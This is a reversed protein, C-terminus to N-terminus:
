EGWFKIYGRMRLWVWSIGVEGLVVAGLGVLFRYERGPMMDGLGVFYSLIWLVVYLPGVIACTWMARRLFGWVLWSFLSPRRREAADKTMLYTKPDNM